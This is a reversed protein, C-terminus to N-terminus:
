KSLRRTKQKHNGFHITVGAGIGVGIGPQWGKPTLYYGAQAGVSLSFRPQARHNQTITIQRDNRLFVLTDLRAQYGSITARYTVSDSYVSQTIPLTVQVSNFRLTDARPLWVTDHRVITRLREIPQNIRLTEVRTIYLTDTQTDINTREGWRVGVGWAVVVLLIWPIIKRMSGLSVIAM